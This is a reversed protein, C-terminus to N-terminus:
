HLNDISVKMGKRLQLTGTTILTDGHHLGSLIQVRNETRIGLLVEVPEAVGSKYLYVLNKGMEPIITESPIAITNEIKEREIIISTHRGPIIKSDYNPYSARVKLTRTNIDVTSEVAYVQANYSQLIGKSNEMSFVINTGRKIESAYSEPVSFDIKIPSTKSLQAVITSPSIYAGESVSRLGIQGDFPARLETQAINSEIIEIDAKLKEYETEVSEYAEQSVADKALLTKQRFVKGEFFPLQTKLKSLQAQLPKDNIKALLDGKKVHAGEKFYIATLKGSAEFSLAVEEDPITSGISMVQDSITQTSLVLADINLIRKSMKGTKPSAALEDNSNKKFKPYVIMGIVLLLIVCLISWKTIKSMTNKKPIYLYTINKLEGMYTAHRNM